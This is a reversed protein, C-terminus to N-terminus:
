MVTQKLFDHAINCELCRKFDCYKTKLEIMGQTTGAHDAKWDYKNFLHVVHNQEPKITSLVKWVREEDITGMYHAYAFVLPAWVNIVLLEVFSKALTHYRKKLVKDSEKFQFHTEWFVTTQTQMINQIETVSNAKIFETFFQNRQAYLNAWQSLRITPFGQPRQQFFTVRCVPKKDLNFRACYYDYQRRLEDAYPHSSSELLGAKGMFLAEIALPENKLKRINTFPISLAISRFADQNHHLGFGQGLAVFLLAEWDNELKSLMSLWEHTKRQLREVLVKQIWFSRVFDATSPLFTACLLSHKVTFLQQIEFVFEKSVFDKVQLTPLETEDKRYIPIDYDWVVHLIVSEYANDKEHNHVYWDSSKVHMEVSGAWQIGDIVILTNSFDPGSGFNRQGPNLIQLSEGKLTKFSKRFFRSQNWLYYLMKENM